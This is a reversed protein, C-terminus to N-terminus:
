RAAVTVFVQEHCLGARREGRSLGSGGTYMGAQADVERGAVGRCQAAHDGRVRAADVDDTM